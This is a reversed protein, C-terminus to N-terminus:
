PAGGDAYITQGTVFGCRDSLLFAILAGIEDPQGKAAFAKAAALGMGATGGIVIYSKVHLNLDM